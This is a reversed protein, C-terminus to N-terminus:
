RRAVAATAAVPKGCNRYLVYAAIKLYTYPMDMKGTPPFTNAASSVFASFDAVSKNQMKRFFKDGLLTPVQGGSGDLFKLDSESLTNIDPVENSFNGPERGAMSYQHCLGCHSDFLVRGEAAETKTYPNKKCLEDAAHASVAAAAITLTMALTWRNM